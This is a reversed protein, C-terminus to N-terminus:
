IAGNKLVIDLMRHERHFRIFQLRRSRFRVAQPIRNLKGMVERCVFLISEIEDEEFGSM